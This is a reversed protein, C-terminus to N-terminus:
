AAWSDDGKCYHGASNMMACFEEYNIQGDGDIDAEDVLSNCEDETMKEGLNMMVHRLETRSIFGNGDVDFVRFAERIEDEAVLSDIKSAMMTLFSPFKVTGIGEKDVENIMDQVEEPTPNEGLTKMVMGLEKTSIVGNRDAISNFADMFMLVKEESLLDAMARHQGRRTTGVLGKCHSGM